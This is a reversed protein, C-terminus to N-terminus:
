FLKRNINAQTLKLARRILWGAALASASAISLVILPTSFMLLGSYGAFIGVFTLVLSAALILVSIKAAASFRSQVRASITAPWLYVIGILMSALAGSMISGAEGGNTVFHARESAM